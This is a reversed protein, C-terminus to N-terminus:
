KLIKKIPLCLFPLGQIHDWHTHTQFINIRSGSEFGGSMMHRGLVRLGSGCDFLLSEGASTMEICPTNGGFTMAHPLDRSELFADIATDDGPDIDRAKRILYRAKERFVGADLPSPLSGRTGWFTVKM